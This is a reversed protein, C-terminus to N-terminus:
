DGLEIRVFAEHTMQRMWSRSGTWELTTPLTEFTFDSWLDIPTSSIDTNPSGNPGSPESTYIPDPDLPNETNWILTGEVPYWSFKLEETEPPTFDESFHTVDEQVSYPSPFILTTINQANRLYVEGLAAFLILVVSGVIGGSGAGGTSEFIRFALELYTEISVDGYQKYGAPHLLAALVREYDKLQLGSKIYYAFDQIRQGDHLKRTYESLMGATSDFITGHTDEGAIVPNGNARDYHKIRVETGTNAGILSTAYDVVYNAENVLTDGSELIFPTYDEASITFPLLHMDTNYLVLLNASVDFDLVYAHPGATYDPEDDDGIPYNYNAVYVLENKTFGIGQDTTIFVQPFQVYPVEDYGYGSDLVTVSTVSGINRGLAVVSANSRQTYWQVTSAPLADAYLDEGTEFGVDEDYLDVVLLDRETDVMVVVGETESNVGMVVDNISYLAANVVKILSRNSRPYITCRPLTRYGTGPAVISVESIAGISGTDTITIVPVSTYGSGADTLTVSQLNGVGELIATADFGSGEGIVVVNCNEYSSGGDTIEVASIGKTQVATITADTTPTSTSLYAHAYTYGTGVTDIVITALRGNADLTCHATANNGNGVIHIIPVSTYFGNRAITLTDIGGGSVTTTLRGKGENDYVTVIPTTYGTGASIQMATSIYGRVQELAYEASANAGEYILCDPYVYGEGPDAIYLKNVGTDLVPTATAGFGDGLLVIRTGLSYGSGSNNVTISEVTKTPVSVNVTMTFSSGGGGTLTYSAGAEYGYGGDIVEVADIEGDLISPRVVAQRGGNALTPNTPEDLELVLPVGTKYGEGSHLVDIRRVVGTGAVTLTGTAAAATTELTATDVEPDYGSGHTEVIVQRLKGDTIVPTLAAGTGAVTDITISSLSSIYYEGSKRVNAAVICGNEVTYDIDAPDPAFTLTATGSSVGTSADLTVTNLTSDVAAVTRTASLLTGTVLMGPVLNAVSSCYVTTSAATCTCTRSATYGQITFTGDTYGQGGSEIVVDTIGYTANFVPTFIGGYGGDDAAIWTRSPSYGAGADNVTVADAVVGDQVSLAIEAGEGVGGTFTLEPNTYCAGAKNLLLEKVRYLVNFVAGIGRQGTISVGPVVASVSGTYSGRDVISVTAISGGM